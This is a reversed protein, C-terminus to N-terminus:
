GAERYGPRCGWRGASIIGVPLLDPRIDPLIEPALMGGDTGVPEVRQMDHIVGHVTGYKVTVSCKLM